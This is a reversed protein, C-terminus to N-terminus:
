KPLISLWRTIRFLPKLIRSTGVAGSEATTAKRCVGNQHNQPVPLEFVMLRSRAAQLTFFNGYGTQMIFRNDANGVGPLGLITAQLRAPAHGNCPGGLGFLWRAKEIAWEPGEPPQDILDHNNTKLAVRDIRVLAEDLGM